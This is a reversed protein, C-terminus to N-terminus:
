PNLWNGIRELAIRVRECYSSIFDKGLPADKPLVEAAALARAGDFDVYALRATLVQPPLGFASGPIIAVGTEELLRECLDDSTKIGRSRLQKLFPSFNPFLYFAGAPREVLLGAKRLDRHCWRGLASLIRRSHLLYREIRLGGQFARVAAYQIPASTSTYTESAVAAMAELLWSMSRPFTFTGLRWGGAGCWKSLGGSVITGEPYFRAISVHQGKHHLEGYIEDSLLLVRYKRAVKALKKLEDLHYTGGTPNNPYNLVVIRPRDPDERCLGKLQDPLLRWGEEARTPLWRIQRGIIRAQPAYSVWTPTPIVLDGYYVLQLLFMLQKSGPGILVDGAACAIGQTRHHYDAVANRLETLGKVPLYEKRHANAQLQEIVSRPVPFPSQGLGLKFVERNEQRLRNCRENIAITASYALGRVNLNLHIDPTRNRARIKTRKTEARKERLPLGGDLWGM